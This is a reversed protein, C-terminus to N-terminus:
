AFMKGEKVYEKKIGEILHQRSIEESGEEATKLCAFQVVNVINAGSLNYTKALQDISVEKQLALNKPLIDNWILLRETAGPMEFEIISQFRRTFAADLNSKLNSALIVLGPHSEIRQLLYSVEQNAYKDHSDRVSTRKGFVADAEDFFLIWDKNAAKDFLRSLNKETEGIYKSVVLSLDIRYVDRGTYKGLLTATLTKGTGPAGYFLVRYGPKIKGALGWNNLLKDQHELWSQIELIQDVTKKQLVLNEWELSTEILQAPFGSGMRPRQVSGTTIIDVYEEDVVLKGSMRPEFSAVDEFSLIGSQFLQSQTQFYRLLNMRTELDKGALLFLLTDGTPFFLERGKGKVLGMEPFEKGQPLYASVLETLMEPQMHPSLALTLAVLDIETLVGHAPIEGLAEQSIFSTIDPLEAEEGTQTTKMRYHVIEDLFLFLQEWLAVSTIAYKNLM